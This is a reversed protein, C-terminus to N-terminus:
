IDLKCWQGYGPADQPWQNAQMVQRVGRALLTAARIVGAHTIWLTQSGPQLSDYYVAVRAMFQSVSEGTNGAAYNAFNETWAELEVRPIADWPRGEWQGFDMEQLNDDTKFTLDPRLGRLDQALQECRQLPSTVAFFGQPLAKALAHACDLTGQADAAMDLQGYCIGPELLPQAHRILWLTM